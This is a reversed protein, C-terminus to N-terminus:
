VADIKRRNWEDIAKAIRNRDQTRYGCKECIVWYHKRNAVGKIYRSKLIPTGGCKCPKLEEM